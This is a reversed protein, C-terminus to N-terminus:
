VGVGAEHGAFGYGFGVAEGVGWYGFDEVLEGAGWSTGGEALPTRPAGYGSMRPVAHGLGRTSRRCGRGRAGRAGIEGDV